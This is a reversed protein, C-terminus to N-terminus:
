AGLLNKRGVGTRVLLLRGPLPGRARHPGRGRSPHALVERVEDLVAAREADPLVAVHSVSAVRQVMAEPTIAQEHRFERPTCRGSAPCTATPATAGSTTIGGPRASRSGTWSGGCRTSGSSAAIARTGSWGSGGARACRARSSPSRATTTSGTSRRRSPSRTSRRTASPSSSPPRRRDDPVGPVVPASRRRAHGRGARGRDPRRRGAALLRTLKGTGAALDVVRRGPGIRLNEVLWAVADPPYSPRAAEYDAPDSFGAAAVEHVM